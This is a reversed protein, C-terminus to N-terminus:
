QEEKMYGGTRRIGKEAEIIRLIKDLSEDRWTETHPEFRGRLRTHFMPGEKM